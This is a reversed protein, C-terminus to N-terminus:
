VLILVVIVARTSVDKGPAVFVDTLELIVFEVSLAGKSICTPLYPFANPLIILELISLLDFWGYNSSM